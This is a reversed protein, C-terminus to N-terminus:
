VGSNVAATVACRLTVVTDFTEATIAEDPLTVGYEEEIDFLLEVAQMSDLGLDVLPADSRLEATANLFRLHPRLVQEFREADLVENTV